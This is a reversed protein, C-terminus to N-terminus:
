AFVERPNNTIIQDNIENKMGESEMLPIINKVIHTYGWGGFCCLMTKLCIDNSILIRKTHGQKVLRNIIRVREIDRIFIGGAFGREDPPIVFEKGFNDFEVFVGKNLLAEIYSYDPEVDVHCLIIKGPDTGREILLDVAELGAHGWPYTHIYVPANLRKFALAVAFLNKREQPLIDKSTGIEGIIGARIGTNDIGEEFDKIIIEAIDEETWSKMEAPHTDQTYYGSGAIINVGTRLSLEKLKEVQRHIGISTCDVITNGGAQKFLMTESVATEMDDLLLNDKVAYPNLRLRGLNNINVKQKSIIQKEYDSFETFQNQLDIFMHEHPLTLGMDEIEIVGTVTQVSM